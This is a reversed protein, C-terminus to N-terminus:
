RELLHRHIHELGEALEQGVVIAGVSTASAEIDRTGQGGLFVPVELQSCLASLDREVVQWGPVVTASIVVAVARTVSVVRPLEALPMDAGLLLPDLGRARALLAFFLLGYEHREGPMCAVVVRAGARSHYGHHWRSGLKNRLYLSFFHEEAVGIEGREWSTGLRQMLPIIVERTLSVDSFRTLLQEYIQNLKHEDFECVAALMQEQIERWNRASGQGSERREAVLMDNVRSVPLGSDVLAVVRKVLAIHDATYLRHGAETRHPKLFEYRREWARLTVTPVGTVEAVRSIPFHRHGSSENVPESDSM